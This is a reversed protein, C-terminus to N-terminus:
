RNAMAISLFPDRGSPGVSNAMLNHLSRLPLKTLQFPKHSAYLTLRLLSPVSHLRICAQRAPGLLNTALAFIRNGM